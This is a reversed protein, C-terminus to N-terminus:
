LRQLFVMEHVSEDTPLTSKESLSIFVCRKTCTKIKLLLIAVCDFFFLSQTFVVDDINIRKTFFRVALCCRMEDIASVKLENMHNSKEPLCRRESFSKRLMISKFM